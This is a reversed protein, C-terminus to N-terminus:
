MLQYEPTQLISNFLFKLREAVTSQDNINGLGNQWLEAWNEEGSFPYDGERIMFEQYFFNLRQTTLEGDDSDFSVNDGVPLYYQVVEIIFSKPDIIQSQDFNTRVFELLNVDGDESSMGDNGFRNRVFNYRSTLYTTNIWSRNYLPFQHYASYGAVEFPEYLDLGQNGVDRRLNGTTGYFAELDTEFNPLGIDFERSFGIILDLPSKIIAGFQNDDFGDGGEYFEQSTFLSTLVPQIKFSNAKLEEGISNVISNDPSIEHYIFFRYIKRAIHSATEEQEYIMEVLQSIEDLLSEETPQSGQLLNIDASIVRGGFRVSFTKPDNDHSGAVTGGGRIIGRPLGIDDDINSFSNDTDFGSLVRAGEQVDEETFFTYDGTFEAPPNTGELGRGISYLELLERAYNENPSGKVNLRGDLFRLMANDVSIKKTLEKFNKPVIRDPIGDPNTEDPPTGPIVIDDGDFAFYRFLANQYYLARSSGVVSSKTTFHTHLFFILRERFIYSLRINDDINNGLMQGVWWNLFYGQLEFEESNADTTGTTIWEQGTLPDIPLPPDPLDTSFLRDVAEQATLNSFEDIESKSAGFCTRKLLHAARKRGLTGQLPTLPM